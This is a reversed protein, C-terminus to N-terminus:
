HTVINQQVETNFVEHQWIRTNFENLFSLGLEPNVDCMFRSIVKEKLWDAHYIEGGM